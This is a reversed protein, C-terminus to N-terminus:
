QRAATNSDSVTRGFLGVRIIDRGDGDDAVRVRRSSEGSASM